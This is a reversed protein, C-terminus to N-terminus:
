GGMQKLASSTFKIQLADTEQIETSHTHEDQYNFQFYKQHLKYM